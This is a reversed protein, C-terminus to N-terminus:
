DFLDFLEELFSLAGKAVSGKKSGHHDHSGYSDQPTQHSRSGHAQAPQGPSSWYGSAQSAVELIKDLEGRDLWIGQCSSCQDIIVGEQRNVALLPTACKPCARGQPRGGPGSAGGARAPQAPSHPPPEVITGGCAPCTPAWAELVTACYRCQIM